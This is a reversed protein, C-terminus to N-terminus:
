PRAEYLLKGEDNYFEVLLDEGATVSLFGGSPEPSIFPQEILAEPDTGRRSGPPVGMRSNEDNLAGCAFEQIGSPHISHYQWHRDGCMTMFHDIENADLWEFFENAEHRFGKLHAHNDKKYADDPGILPTPSIM